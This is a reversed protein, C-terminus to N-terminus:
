NAGEIQRELENIYIGLQRILVTGEPTATCHEMGIENRAAIESFGNLKVTLCGNSVVLALLLSLIRLRKM